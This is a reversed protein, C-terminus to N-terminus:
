PPSIAGIVVQVFAHWPNPARGRGLCHSGTRRRCAAGSAALLLLADGCRWGPGRRPPGRRTGGGVLQLLCGSDGRQRWHGRGGLLPPLPQQPLLAVQAAGRPSATPRLTASFKGATTGAAIATRSPGSAASGASPAYAGRASWTGGRARERRWCSAPQPRSLPARRAPLAGHRPPSLLPLAGAPQPPPPLRRRRGVGVTTVATSDASRCRM